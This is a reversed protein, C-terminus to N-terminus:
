FRAIFTAGFLPAPDRDDERLLRGSSDEVRLQGNLVLGGFLHLVSQNGFRHTVRLFVPMGREEGIGSPTPGSESLRFRLTRWAAGLGATWNGDLEYDLELGAPGTPGSALPNVLRWRDGLRWDVALFPFVLTEELRDFMAVGLGLTNGNEFRRSGSFTAGWTFSDSSAAGNEKFWEFSPAVGLNWGHGLTFSLPAAVGYRQVVGWPPTSNFVTPNAFSYDLYDYVLTIGARTGGGLDTLIGGRFVMGGFRVDGGDELGAGAQYVPTVSAFTTTGPAGARGPQEGAPGPAAAQASAALALWLSVAVCAILSDLRSSRSM